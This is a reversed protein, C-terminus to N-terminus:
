EGKKENFAAAAAGWKSNLYIKKLKQAQAVIDDMSNCLGSNAAAIIFAMDRASQLENTLKRIEKLLAKYQEPNLEHKMGFGM